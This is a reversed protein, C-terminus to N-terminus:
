RFTLPCPFFTAYLPLQETWSELVLFNTQTICFSQSAIPTILQGVVLVATNHLLLSITVM